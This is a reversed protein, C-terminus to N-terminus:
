FSYVVGVAFYPSNQTSNNFYTMVDDVQILRAAWRKSLTYDLGGALATEFSDTSQTPTVQHADGFQVTVFPTFKGAKAMLIPGAIFSYAHTSIGLPSAYLGDFTAGFAFSKTVNYQPAVVWGNANFRMGTTTEPRLYNYGGFVSFKPADQAFLFMLVLLAFLAFLALRRAFRIM